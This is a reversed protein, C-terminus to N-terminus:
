KELYVCNFINEPDHQKHLSNLREWAAKSFCRKVDKGRTELDFENIYCNSAIPQLDDYLNSLWQKNIEDDKADQWNVYTAFYFKGSASFAADSLIPNGRWIFIPLSSRSPRRNLHSSLIKVAERPNNTLINDTRYRAESFTNDGRSHLKSFDTLQESSVSDVMLHSLSNIISEHLKTAQESSDAFAILGIIVQCNYDEQLVPKDAPVVAANIELKEDPNIREIEVLIDALFRFPIKLSRTTITSPLPMCQLYFRVVVFFLCPGAGRAVWYLESHENTNIHMLQGDATVIDFATINFVSMGGWAAFNLGLGGGLLFGGMGVLGAHGTPFGYGYPYLFQSLEKSTVGPGIIAQAKEVDFEIQKLESVDLLISNTLLYSGSFSGGNSRLSIGTELKKALKVTIVIDSISKAKVIIDPYREFDRKNRSLKRIWSSYNKDGRLCVEGLLLSVFDSIEKKVGSENIM